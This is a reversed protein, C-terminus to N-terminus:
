PSPLALFNFARFPYIGCRRFEEFELPGRDFLYDAYSYIGYGHALFWDFLARRKDDTGPGFEFVITPRHSGIVKGAGQLVSLENGEVDIKILDIRARNNLVDDLRCLAVNQITHHDLADPDDSVFSLGPAQRNEYFGITGSREGVAMAFVETTPFRQKLWAAKTPSPEFAVHRGQPALRRALSLFSGIHCGVDVCTSNPRLLRALLMPLRREELYIEWLEPHRHRQWAGLLWRLDHITRDITTGVLRSKFYLSLPLSSRVSLRQPM